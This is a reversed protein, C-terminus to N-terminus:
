SNRFFVNFHHTQAGEFMGVQKVRCAAIARIGASHHASDPQHLFFGKLFFFGSLNLSVLVLVLEGSLAFKKDSKLRIRTNKVVLLLLLLM